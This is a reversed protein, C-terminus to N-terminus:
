DDADRANAALAGSDIAAIIEKAQTVYQRPVQLRAGGLAPSAVSFAQNMNGDMVFAPIGEAELRARLIELRQSKFSRAITELHVPDGDDSKIEEEVPLSSPHPIGRRSLEAEAIEFALPTLTGSEFTELLYDDALGAFYKTLEDRNRSSFM